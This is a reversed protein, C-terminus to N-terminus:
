EDSGDNDGEGAGLCKYDLAAGAIRRKVTKRSYSQDALSSQGFHGNQRKPNTRHAGPAHEQDLAALFRGRACSCRAAGRDTMVWPDFVGPRLECCSCGAPLETM